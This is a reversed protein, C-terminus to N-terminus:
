THKHNDTAKIFQNKGNEKAIYLAEDARKLLKEYDSNMSSASYFIYGASMKVQTNDFEPSIHSRSYEDQFADIHHLLANQNDEGYIVVIFEDGGMRSILKNPSSCSKMIDASLKIAADGGDHGYNDNIEKLNDVDFAIIVAEKLKDFETFLHDMERYFARRNYVETLIDYDREYELLKKENVTNSVDVIVGYKGDNNATSEIMLFTGNDLLYVNTEDTSVKQISKIKSEFSYKDELLQKLEEDSVDLLEHLKRTAFVRRMDKKYEYVAIRTDVYDLVHSMRATNNLLSSVMMNLHFSLKQLEPSSTINVKTDLDGGAIKSVNEILTNIDKLITYDILKLLLILLLLAALTFYFAITKMESIVEDMIVTKNIAIGIYTDDEYTVFVCFYDIGNLETYFGDGTLLSNNIDLGIDSSTQNLLTSDSSGVIIDSTSDIAFLITNDNTPMNAFIYSLENQSQEELIREPELGIQIINSGDSTWTAVYMMPKEEATNPTIDQCLTLTQDDLLPKFFSMQEGSDFSYGYYKIESGEYIKGTDDFVHIEDVNVLSALELYEEATSIDINEWIYAVMQVKIIYEEKLSETLTDLAIDNTVLIEEIQEITSLATNEQTQSASNFQLYSNLVLLLVLITLIFITLKTAIQKKM